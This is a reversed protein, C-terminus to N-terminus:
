DQISETIETISPKNVKCQEIESLHILAQYTTTKKNKKMETLTTVHLASSIWNLYYFSLFTQIESQDLSLLMVSTFNGEDIKPVVFLNM